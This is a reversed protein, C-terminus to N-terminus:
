ALASTLIASSSRLVPIGGIIPYSLGSHRSFYFNDLKELPTDSGPDSFIKSSREKQITVERPQILYAVTPNLRNFTGKLPIIDLLKAGIANTAGQLDKIYGLRDMRARGEDNNLEYSPEFLVALRRTVRLIESLLEVESGGNPELAHSTMAVDISKSQLPIEGIDATFAQLRAPHKMNEAAFGLGVKIRSWSIDFAYLTTNDRNLKASILSLNTMEGCGVDLLTDGDHLHSDLISAIESTYSEISVRNRSMETIYTGAQLDYAMEIIEPTNHDIGLQERLHATVNGGQDYVAKAKAFDIRGRMPAAPHRTM